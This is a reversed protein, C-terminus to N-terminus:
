HRTTQDTEAAAGFQRDIRRQYFDALSKDILKQQGSETMETIGLLMNLQGIANLRASERNRDDMVIQLLKHAALRSHWLDEPNSAKIRETVKAAISQVSLLALALMDANGLYKGYRIMEFARIVAADRPIGKVYLDIFSDVNKALDPFLWDEDAFNRPDHREIDENGHNYSRSM